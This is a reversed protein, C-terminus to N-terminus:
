AYDGLVLILDPNLSDFAEAFGILGLSTSKSIGLPTDSLLLLDIKWNILFGDSEIEKYTEGYKKSLHSGTAILQLEFETSRYILGILRRLLGYEARSGTVVCIKKFKSTRMMKKLELFQDWTQYYDTPIDCLLIQHPTLRSYDTIGLCIDNRGKRKGQLLPFIVNFTEEPLNNGTIAIFIQCLIKYM